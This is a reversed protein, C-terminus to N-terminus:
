QRVGSVVVGRRWGTHTHTANRQATIGVAGPHRAPGLVRRGPRAVQFQAGGVRGAEGHELREAVVVAPQPEVDVPLLVVAGGGVVCSESGEEGGGGGRQLARRRSAM